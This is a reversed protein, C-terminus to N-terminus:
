TVSRKASLAIASLMAVEPQPPASVGTDGGVVGGGVGVIATAAVGDENEATAPVVALAPSVTVRPPPNAPSTVSLVLPAGSPIVTATKGADSPGSIVDPVTNALTAAVTGARPYETETTALLAAFPWIVPLVVSVMVTM